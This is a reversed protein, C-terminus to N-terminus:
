NKIKDCNLITFFFSTFLNHFGKLCLVLFFCKRSKIILLFFFGLYYKIRALMQGGRESERERERECFLRLGLFILGCVRMILIKIVWFSLGVGFQQQTRGM